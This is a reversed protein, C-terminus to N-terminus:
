RTVQAYLKLVMTSSEIMANYLEAMHDAHKQAAWYEYYQSYEDMMALYQVLKEAILQSNVDSNAKFAQLMDYAANEAQAMVVFDKQQQSKSITETEALAYSSSFAFASLLMLVRTFNKM